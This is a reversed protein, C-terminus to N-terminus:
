LSISNISWISELIIDDQNSSFILLYPESVIYSLYDGMKSYDYEPNWGKRKTFGNIQAMKKYDSDRIHPKIVEIRSDSDNLALLKVKCQEDYEGLFDIEFNYPFRNDIKVKKRLVRFWGSFKLKYNKRMWLSGAMSGIEFIPNIFEDLADTPTVLVKNADSIELRYETKHSRNYREIAEQLLQIDNSEIEVITTEM